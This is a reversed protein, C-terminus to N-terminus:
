QKGKKEKLFSIFYHGDSGALDLWVDADGGCDYERALERAEDEAIGTGKLVSKKVVVAVGNEILSRFEDYKKDSLIILQTM